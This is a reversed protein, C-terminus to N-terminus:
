DNLWGSSNRQSLTNCPGPAYGMSDPRYGPQSAVRGYPSSFGPNQGAIYNNRQALSNPDQQGYLRVPQQINTERGYREDMESMYTRYGRGDMSARPVDPVPSTGRSWRQPISSYPEETNLGYRMTIDDGWTGGYGTPFPAQSGANSHGFHWYGEIGVDTSPTEFHESPHRDLSKSGTMKAPSHREANRTDVQSIVGSGRGHKGKGRKRKKPTGESQNKGPGHNEHGERDGNDGGHQRKKSNDESHNKGHGHNEHGERNGNDGDYQRKKSNDESQNKRVHNEHSERDGNDRPFGERHNRTMSTAREHLLEPEENKVYHDDVLMLTKRNLDHAVVPFNNLLMEYHNEELHSGERVRTSHGHQQAIEKHKATWDARSWLYLPPPILNWQDMQKDNVDVSGPLYFSKGALLEDDEWVLDYPPDKKDWRETEPPVILILLKPKFELAKNIFKNALAANVGFPPNLGMILQSGPTLEKPRVSM